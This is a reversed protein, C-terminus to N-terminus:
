YIDVITVGHDGEGERGLRYSEVHIHEDLVEQVAKRLAGTGKGHIIEVQKLGALFVDDLYKDLLRQADEYRKGRLDLSPSVRETKKVRYRRVMEKKSTEPMEAKILDELGVKVTM